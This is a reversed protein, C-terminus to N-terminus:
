HTTLDGGWTLSKPIRQRYPYLLLQRYGGQMLDTGLKVTRIVRDRLHHTKWSIASLKQRGLLADSIERYSCGAQRGDVGRLALILRSRRQASLAGPDPGPNLNSLTRWLRLASKVRIEFFRDLPLLVAAQDGFDDNVLVHHQKGKATLLHEGPAALAKLAPYSAAFRRDTLPAACTAVITTSPLAQLTWRVKSSDVTENLGAVEYGGVARSNM